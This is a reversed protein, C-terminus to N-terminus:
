KPTWIKGILVMRALITTWVFEAVLAELFSFGQLYHIGSERTGWAEVLATDAVGNAIARALHAQLLCGDPIAM